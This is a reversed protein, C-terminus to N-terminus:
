HAWLRKDDTTRTNYILFVQLRQQEVSQRQEQRHPNFCMGPKTKTALRGQPQQHEKLTDGDGGVGLGPIGIGAM